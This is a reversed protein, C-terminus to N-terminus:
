SEQRAGRVGPKSVVCAYLERVAADGSGTSDFRVPYRLASPLTTTPRPQARIGGVGDCAARVADQQVPTAQEEFLVVVETRVPACAVLAAIGLAALVLLCLLRAVRASM